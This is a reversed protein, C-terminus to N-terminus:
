AAGPRVTLREDGAVAALVASLPSTMLAAEIPEFGFASAAFRVLSTHPASASSDQAAPM